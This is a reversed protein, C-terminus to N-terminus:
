SSSSSGSRDSGAEALMEKYLDVSAEEMKLAHEYVDLPEPVHKEELDFQHLNQFVNQFATYAQGEELVYEMQDRYRVLIRAHDNEDKALMRFVTELDTDRYLEAQALYYKEGDREMQIAFELSKM